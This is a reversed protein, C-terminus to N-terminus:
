GAGRATDLKEKCSPSHRAIGLAIRRLYATVTISLAKAEAELIAHEKTSFRLQVAKPLTRNVPM